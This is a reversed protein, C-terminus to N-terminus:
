EFGQVAGLELGTEYLGLQHSEPTKVEAELAVLPVAQIDAVLVRQSEVALALERVGASASLGRQCVLM